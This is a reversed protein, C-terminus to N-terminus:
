FNYTVGASFAGAGALIYIAGQYQVNFDIQPTVAYRLGLGTYPLLVWSGNDIDAISFLMLGLKGFFAARQGIRATGRWALFGINTHTTVDVGKDEDEYEAYNQMFGAELANVPSFNYGAAANWSFGHFGGNSAKGESSFVGLYYLNTGANFEVYPGKHSNWSADQPKDEALGQGPGWIMLTGILTVLFFLPRFKM